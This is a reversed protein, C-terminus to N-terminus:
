LKRTEINAVRAWNVADGLEERFGLCSRGARFDRSGLQHPNWERAVKKMPYEAGIVSQSRECSPAGKACHKTRSNVHAKLRPARARDLRM